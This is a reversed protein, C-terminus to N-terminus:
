TSCIYIQLSTNQQDQTTRDGSSTLHDQYNVWPVRLFQNTSLTPEEYRRTGSLLQENLLGRCALPITPRHRPVTQLHPQQLVGM